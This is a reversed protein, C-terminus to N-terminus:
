VDALCKQDSFQYMSSIKEKESWVSYVRPIIKYTFALLNATESINLNIQRAGVDM